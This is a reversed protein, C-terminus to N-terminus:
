KLGFVAKVTVTVQKEIQSTDYSGYDSVDTSNRSQVQVVGSSASKLTGVKKGSSQALENARAKADAIADGLLSVRVDPLKIYNYNLANTSFIVGQNIVDAIHNSATKIKAVDASQVTYSQTLTYLKEASVNQQYVEMMSVPNITFEDTTIGQAVFFAQVKETDSAIQAYGTKLTSERTTRTVQTTWKAQDATVDVKASGTVSVVDNADRVKLVVWAGVGAALLLSVGLIIGVIVTPNRFLKQEM